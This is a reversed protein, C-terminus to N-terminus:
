IFIHNFLYYVTIIIKGVSVRVENSYVDNGCHVKYFGADNLTSDSIKLVFMPLTKTEEYKSRNHKDLRYYDGKISHFWETISIAPKGNLIIQIRSGQSYTHKTATLNGCSAILLFINM